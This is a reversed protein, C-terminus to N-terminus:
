VLVAALTVLFLGGALMPLEAANFGLLARDHPRSTWSWTWFSIRAM